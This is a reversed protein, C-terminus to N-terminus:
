VVRAESNHPPRLTAFSPAAIPPSPSLDARAARQSAADPRRPGRHGHPSRRLQRLCRRVPLRAALGPRRAPQHRAAGAPGRRAPCRFLGVEGRGRAQPRRPEAGREPAPRSASAHASLRRAGAAQLDTSLQGPRVGARRRQPLRRRGYLSEGHPRRPRRSRPSAGVAQRRLPDDAWYPHVWGEAWAGDTLAQFQDWYRGTLEPEATGPPCRRPPTAPLSTSAWPRLCCSISAAIGPRACGPKPRRGVSRRHRTSGWITGSLVTPGAADGGRGRRVRRVPEGASRDTQALPGGLAYQRLGDLTRRRRSAQDEQRCLGAPDLGVNGAELRGCQRQPRATRLALLRLPLPAAHLPAAPPAPRSLHRSRPHEPQARGPRLARRALRPQSRLTQSGERGIRRFRRQEDGLGMLFVGGIRIPCDPRIRETAKIEGVPRRARTVPPAAAGPPKGCGALCVLACVGAWKGVAMATEREVFYVESAPLYLSIGAARDVPRSELGAPAAAELDTSVTPRSVPRIVGEYKKFFRSFNTTESFGLQEAIRAISDPSYALLRKAELLVRRDLLTKASCKEVALCARTLTKAACGLRQAYDSLARYRLYEEEVLLKYRSVLQYAKSSATSVSDNAHFLRLTLLLTYLQHQLLPRRLPQGAYKATDAHLSAATALFKQALDDPLDSHAAWWLPPLAGNSAMREPLLFSPDVVILQGTLTPNLQWQHVQGPRVLILTNARLPYEVFDVSHQGEGGTFLVLLCFQLRQVRGLREPRARRQLEVLSLTEIGLIPEGQPNYHVDVISSM